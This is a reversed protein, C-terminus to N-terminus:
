LYIIQWKTTIHGTKMPIAKSCAQVFSHTSRETEAMNPPSEFSM